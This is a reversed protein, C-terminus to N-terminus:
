IKELMRKLNRLTGNFARRNAPTIVVPDLLRGVMGMPPVYDITLEVRTNRGEPQFRWEWVTNLDGSAEERLYHPREAATVRNRGRYTLGLMRYTWDFSTDLGTQPDGPTVKETQIMGVIWETAREPRWALDYVAEPSRRILITQSVHGMM